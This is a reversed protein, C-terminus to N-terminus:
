QETETETETAPSVPEPGLTIILHQQAGITQKFANHATTKDSEQLAPVYQDYYNLPLKYFGMTGLRGLISSNTGFSLPFSAVLHSKAKELAEDTIGDQLFDALTKQTLKLAKAASDNRTQLDILFLGRERMTSAYSYVSYALGNDQRIVKNLQSTFGGGGFVENALTLLILDKSDRKLSLTAIRIHTQQSPYTIHIPALEAPMTAAPLTEPAQGAPLASLIQGSIKKAHAWDLAGVIAIVANAATYHTKHFQTLLPRTINELTAITGGPHNAYPHQPYLAAWTAKSILSRPSAKEHELNLLMNKRLRSYSTEPFTPKSIVEIFLELSPNLYEPASLTKLKVIGMDRQSATGFESGLSEFGQAIEDVDYRESGEGLLSNTLRALGPLSGDRASGADFIVEINVMPLEPAAVFMLRAGSPHYLHKIDLEIPDEPLTKIKAHLDKLATATETPSIENSKAPAEPTKQAAKRSTQSLVFIMIAVVIILINLAKKSFRRKPIDFPVKPTSM